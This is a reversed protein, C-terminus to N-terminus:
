YVRRHRRYAHAVHASCFIPNIVCQAARGSASANCQPWRRTRCEYYHSGPQVCAPLGSLGSRHRPAAPGILCDRDGFDSLGSHRV